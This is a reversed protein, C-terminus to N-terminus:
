PKDGQYISVIGATLPTCNVSAFGAEKMISCFADGYPFTEITENLYRYATSDGSIIAGLRPLIHRLYFLYPGRVLRNSPVSFELILVRGGPKLVRLMEALAQRIDAMNRIGFSISVADFTGREFTLKEADGTQLTLLHDLNRRGIKERGLTLMHEALDLGIGHGVRGGAALAILQDGTGCALDLVVLSNGSPLLRALRRRWRRDIGGSLLRNLLDYRAAIRDFMKWVQYRSPEARETRQYGQIESGEAMPVGM